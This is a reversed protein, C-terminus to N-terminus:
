RAPPVVISAASGPIVWDQVAKEDMVARVTVRKLGTDLFEEVYTLQAPLPKEAEEKAPLGWVLIRHDSTGTVAFEGAPDFTGCTITGTTWLLQRLEAARTESSPARWLQLRGPGNGNTLITRGNPSFLALTQFSGTAGPNQLTGEIRRKSWSWIRLERGEDFLVKDGTPDMGLLGVDNSRGRAEDVETLSDGSIEWLALRNDRGASMLKGTPTFALTTILNKHAAAKRYKLKGTDTDWVCIARDEGATAVLGGDATFAVANVAGRHRVTEDSGLGVVDAKLNDLDFMQLQGTATATVLLNKKADKGSCALARVAAGHDLRAREQWRKDGVVREWIRVVGQESGSVIRSAPGRTVGVCTIESLDGSLVAEPPSPRTVEVEVATLADARQRLDAAYKANTKEQKAAELRFAEAKKVRDQLPLAEQVEVQAEVRLKRTNQIQMVPDLKRVAEGQQKYLTRIRGSIMARVFYLDLTAWAASLEQQAQTTAARKAVEEAAYRDVTVRSAELDDLSVSGPAKARAVKNAAYRRSSEEKMARSSEIEAAAAEVKAQKGSLEQLAVTPNIVGLLQGERVEDNEALKRFKIKVRFIKSTGPALSDGPRPFRYMKGPDAPDEFPEKIAAREHSSTRIKAEDGAKWAVGLLAVELFAEKGAPVSEGEPVPTALLLLKGDQESPVEQREMPMVRGDQIILPQAAANSSVLEVVRAKREAAPKGAAAPPSKEDPEIAAPKGDEKPRDGLKPKVNPPPNDVNGDPKPFLWEGGFVVAAVCAGAMLVCVGFFKMM